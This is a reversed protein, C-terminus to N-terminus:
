AKCAETFARFLELFEPFRATLSEPHFQVGLIFRSRDDSEFGELVGDPAFASASLGPALVSVAQHHFSNVRVTAQGFAHRLITNGSIAISHYLRDVPFGEPNHKNLGPNATQLDQFLSGGMAVNVLQHGRCIGFVPLGKKMAAAFLALEWADRVADFVGIGAVPEQGFHIPDLDKGGTLLLGDVCGICDEAAAIDERQPLVLPIGGAEWISRTYHDSLSVYHARPQPDLFSTLGIRPKMVPSQIRKM